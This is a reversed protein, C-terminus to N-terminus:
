VVQPSKFVVLSHAENRLFASLLKEQYNPGLCRYKKLAGGTIKILLWTSSGGTSPVSEQLPQLIAMATRMVAGAGNGAPSSPAM